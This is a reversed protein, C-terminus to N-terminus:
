SYTFNLISFLIKPYERLKKLQQDVKKVIEYSKELDGKLIRHKAEILTIYIQAYQNKKTFEECEKISKLSDELSLNSRLIFNDLLELLVYLDM